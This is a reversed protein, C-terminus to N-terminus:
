SSRGEYENAFQWKFGYASKQKSRCCEYITGPQFGLAQQIQSVDEWCKVPQGYLTLQQIPKGTPKTPEAPPTELSFAEVVLSQVSYTKRKGDKSLEVQLQGTKTEKLSLEKIEGRNRWNMSRVAGDRNVQYLGEYGPIDKWFEM